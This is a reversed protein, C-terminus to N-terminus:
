NGVGMLMLTHSIPGGGGGASKFAAVASSWQGATITFNVPYTGPAGADLKYETYENNLTARGVLLTCCAGASQSPVNSEVFGFLMSDASSTTVNISPNALSGQNNGASGDLTIGGNSGFYVEQCIGYISQNNSWNVSITKNGGVSLSSLYALQTSMNLTTNLSPTGLVTMNSEGSVTVSSITSGAGSTGLVFACILGRGTTLGNYTLNLTANFASGDVFTAGLTAGAGYSLTPLVLSFIILCLLKKM